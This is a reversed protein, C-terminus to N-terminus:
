EAKVYSALMDPGLRRIRELRFHPADGLSALGLPGVAAIGDAGILKGATFHEIRDALGAKLFSAHVSGGGEVLVRTLGMDALRAAVAEASHRAPLKVVEVGCNELAKVSAQEGATHFVVTKHRHADSALKSGTPLRLASDVLLRVPSRDTLGPLRCDLSPDDAIATGIGVLIADHTARLLHGYRRAEEGTIWKSEGSELAIRGDLTSAIKLTFLPRNKRVRLFFGSNLADAEAQLLGTAVEVGADLLMQIGRGGVRPDPDGTAVVVRSVGAEILTRACAPTEGVHACPELTVYATAGAAREAAQTLAVVEAHPRGGPQTWGRGVVIGDKALICGVAPNPATQGLGRRALSLAARMMQTDFDTSAM